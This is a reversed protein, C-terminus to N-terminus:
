EIEKLTNIFGEFTSDTIIVETNLAEKFEQVSVDDIFIDEDAKLAVDPVIVVDDKTVVTNLADLVDRGPLLGCVSVTKGFLRNEVEIVDIKVNFRENLWAAVQRLYPYFSTGTFTIIRRKPIRKLTKIRKMQHLFSAVMGVGNEIQALEGYSALPPIKEDAKIYMEDAPYVFLTNDKKKYEKQLKRIQAITQAALEKTVPKIEKNSYSTIGVPVVAVTSVYPYLTYLESITKILEKDDNIGPCLVIQTHIFIKNKTFFSLEEKIDTIHSNGLLRQRVTPTISHVSVYLPSLRKEIIDQKDKDTLNTLTMYNGYLFSMRYDEDKIYLSRRLGKPLQSVFCFICNNRCTNIKFHELEIGLELYDDNEICLPILQGDRQIQFHLVPEDTYFMLDIANAVTHGNVTLIRDGKQFGAEDAISGAVVHDVVNGNDNTM